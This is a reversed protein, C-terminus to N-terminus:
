IDSILPCSFHTISLLSIFNTSIINLFLVYNHYLYFFWNQHCQPLIVLSPIEPQIVSSISESVSIQRCSNVPSHEQYDQVPFSLLLVLYLFFKFHSAMTVLDKVSDLTTRSTFHGKLTARVQSLTAPRKYTRIWTDKSTLQEQNVQTLFNVEVSPLKQPPM